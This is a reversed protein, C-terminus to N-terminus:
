ILHQDGIARSIRCGFDYGKTWQEAKKGLIASQSQPTGVEDVIDCSKTLTRLHRLRAM